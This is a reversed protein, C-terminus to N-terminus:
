DKESGGYLPRPANHDIYFVSCFSTLICLQFNCCGFPIIILSYLELDEVNGESLRKSSRTRVQSLETHETQVLKERLESPAPGAPPSQQARAAALQQVLAEVMIMSSQLRHELEQRPLGELSGPPVSFACLHSSHLPPCLFM